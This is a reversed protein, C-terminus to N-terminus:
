AEPLGADGEDGRVLVWTKPQGKGRLRHVDDEVEEGGEALREDGQGKERGLGKERLRRGRGERFRVEGM